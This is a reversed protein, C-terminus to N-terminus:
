KIRTPKKKTASPGVAAAPKKKLLPKGSSSKTSKKKEVVSPSGDMSMNAPNFSARKELRILDVQIQQNQKKHFSYTAPLDYVLEAVVKAKCGWSDAVRLIYDRTSSKHLSYVATKTLRVAVSLFHMDAGKM